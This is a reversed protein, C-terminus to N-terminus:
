LRSGTVADQGQYRSNRGKSGYPSKSPTLTEMFLIQAIPRGIRLQIPNPGLNVFELTIKGDFGPDIWGATCHVLLGLRAFSSKGQVQAALGAPLTVREATSGLLFEGPKLDIVADQDHTIHLGDGEIFSADLTLDISAPQILDDRVPDLRLEGSALRIRIDHDSLLVCDEVPVIVAGAYYEFTPRNTGDM